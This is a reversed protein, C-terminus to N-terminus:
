PLTIPAPLGLAAEPLAEGGPGLAPLRQEPAAPDYWGVALTYTGPPLDDLPIAINETVVEGQVWLATPYTNNLPMADVQRPVSGDPARLHVFFKYDAGPAALARWVLQLQLGGARQDVTYGWLEIVEGYRVGAATYSRAPPLDFTRARGTVQVEAVAVEPGAPEGAEDVVALRLTYVGPALDAPTGLRVRGLVYSGAPWGLPSSGPALDLTQTLPLNVAGEAPSAPALTWRARYAQTPANQVLWGVRVEPAEGQPFVEPVEVSVLGLGPALTHEAV